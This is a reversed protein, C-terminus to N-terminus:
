GKSNFESDNLYNQFGEPCNFDSQFGNVSISIM